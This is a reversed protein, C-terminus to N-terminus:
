LGEIDPVVARLDELAIAGPRLVKFPRVTTDVLTSPATTSRQTGAGSGVRGGDILLGIGSPHAEMVEQATHPDPGGSRNASTGILPMGGLRHQGGGIRHIEAILPHPSWRLAVTGRADPLHPPLRPSARFVLTLPGPWFRAMLAEAEPPTEEVWPGAGARGDVLLLLAKSPPRGKLRYVAAAVEPLLANGGLAYATETPYAMVMGTMGAGGASGAGGGLAVRIAKEAAPAAEPPWPYKIHLADKM